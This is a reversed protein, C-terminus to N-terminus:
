LFDNVEDILCDTIVDMTYPAETEDIVFGSDVLDRVMHPLEPIIQTFATLIWEIRDPTFGKLQVFPCDTLVIGEPVIVGEEDYDCADFGYDDDADFLGSTDSCEGQPIRLGTEINTCKQVICCPPYIYSGSYYCNGWDWDASLVFPSECVGNEPLPMVEDAHCDNCCILGEPCANSNAKIALGTLREVCTEVNEEFFDDMLMDYDDDPDLRITTGDPNKVVLFVDDVESQDSMTPCTGPINTGTNYDYILEHAIGLKRVDMAYPFIDCVIESAPMGPFNGNVKLHFGWDASADTPKKIGMALSFYKGDDNAVGGVIDAQTDEKLIGDLCIKGIQCLGTCQCWCENNCMVRQDAILSMCHEAKCASICQGLPDTNGAADARAGYFSMMCVVSM